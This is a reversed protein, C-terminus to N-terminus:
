SFIWWLGVVIITLQTLVGPWFSANAQIGREFLVWKELLGGRMKLYYYPWKIVDPLVSFFSCLLVLLAKGPDSNYQYAVFIGVGLAILIDAVAIITSKQSPHGLKQTETYLHPNWHPVKDLIFHSALSLPLALAPNGVKAAIAAGVVVHPTELM